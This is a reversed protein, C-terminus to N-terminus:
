EPVRDYSRCRGSPSATWMITQTQSLGASTKHENGGAVDCAAAIAAIRTTIEGPVVVSNQRLAAFVPKTPEHDWLAAGPCHDLWVPYGPLWTEGLAVLKAGREAADAVSKELLDITAELNWYAPQAQVIAVRVTHDANM